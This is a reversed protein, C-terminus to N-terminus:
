PLNGFLCQEPRRQSSQDIPSPKSNPQFASPTTLARTCGNPLQESDTMRLGSTPRLVEPLTESTIVRTMAKRGLFHQCFAPVYGHLSLCEPLDKPWRRAEPHCFWFMMPM